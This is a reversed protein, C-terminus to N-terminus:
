REPGSPVRQPRDGRVGAPREDGGAHEVREPEGPHPPSGRGSRAGPLVRVRVPRGAQWDPRRARDRGDDPQGAEGVGAPVLGHLVRVRAARRAAAAGARAVALPQVDAVLGLLDPLRLQLHQRDERRRDDPLRPDAPRRVPRAPVVAAAEPLRLRRRVALHRRGPGPDRGPGPARLDRGGREAPDPPRDPRAEGGHQLAAPAGRARVAGSAHPLVGRLAGGPHPEAGARLRRRRDAPLLAATSEAARLHLARRRVRRDGLAVVRRDGGAAHPLARGRGRLRRAPLGGPDADARLRGDDGGLGAPNAGDADRDRVLLDRLPEHRQRGGRRRRLRLRVRRPEERERSRKRELPLRVLLEALAAPAPRDDGPDRARRVRDDRVLAGRSRPLRRAGLQPRPRARVPEVGHGQLAHDARGREPAPGRLRGRRQRLPRDCLRAGRDGLRRLPRLRGQARLRRGARAPIPQPSPEERDRLGARREAGVGDPAARRLLATTGPVRPRRVGPLPLGQPSDPPSRRHRRVAHIGERPKETSTSGAGSRAARSATAPRAATPCARASTIRTSM